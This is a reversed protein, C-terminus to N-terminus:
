KGGDIQVYINGLHNSFFLDDLFVDGSSLEIRVFFYPRSSVVGEPQKRRITVEWMDGRITGRHSDTRGQKLVFGCHVVEPTAEEGNRRLYEFAIAQAHDSTIFPQKM